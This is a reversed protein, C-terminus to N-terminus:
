GERCNIAIVGLFHNARTGIRWSWRTFPMGSCPGASRSRLGETVVEPWELLQGMSGADIKGYRATYSSVM